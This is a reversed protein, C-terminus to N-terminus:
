DAAVPDVVAFLQWSPQDGDGVLEVTAGDELRSVWSVVLRDPPETPGTAVALVGHHPNLLALAEGDLRCLDTRALTGALRQADAVDVTIARSGHHSGGILDVSVSDGQVAAVTALHAPHDPDAGLALRVQTHHLPHTM